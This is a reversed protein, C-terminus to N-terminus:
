LFIDGVTLVNCGAIYATICALGAFLPPYFGILVGNNPTIESGNRMFSRVKQKKTAQQKTTSSNTRLPPIDVVQV